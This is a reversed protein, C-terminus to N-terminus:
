KRRRRKRKTPLEGTPYVFDWEPSQRGIDILCAEYLDLIDKVLQKKATPKLLDFSFSTYTGIERRVSLRTELIRTFVPQLPAPFDSEDLPVLHFTAQDLRQRLKGKGQALVEVSYRLKELVGVPDGWEDM